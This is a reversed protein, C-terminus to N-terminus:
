INNAEKIEAIAKLIVNYEDRTFRRSDYRFINRLKTTDFGLVGALQSITIDYKKLEM